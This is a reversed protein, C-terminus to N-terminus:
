GLTVGDADFPLEVATAWGDIRGALSGLVGAATDSECWLLISPGAGSVTAGIAGLTRADAILAAAQPFLGARYQQHLRDDLGAAILDLDGRELGLVLSATAAVNVVADAPSVSEPLAARAAKTSVPDDPIVLVAALGSPAAIRAPAGGGVPCAVFGGFIAAAVNDPHGEAKAAEEYLRQRDLGNGGGGGGLVQAAAIGGVIAAASSGLGRSSPIDGSIRFVLGDAPHVREFSRVVLNSRNAPLHPAGPEVTPESGPLADAVAVEVTLYLGLAAALVDFGPGLNASSAPIRVRVMGDGSPRFDKESLAEM